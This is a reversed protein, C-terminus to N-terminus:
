RRKLALAARSVVTPADAKYEWLQHKPTLLIWGVSIAFILPNILGECSLNPFIFFYSKPILLAVAVLVLAPPYSEKGTGVVGAMLTFVFFVVLHYPSFISTGMAYLATLVFGFYFITMRGRWFLFSAWGIALCILGTISTNMWALVDPSPDVSIVRYILKLAGYASANNSDGGPGIVYLRYYTSIAEKFVSYSYGPEVASEVFYAVGGIGASVLFFFAWGLAARRLGFSLLLPAMLLANPRINCALALCFAALLLHRRVCCFYIYSILGGATILAFVNGRSLALMFPYSLALVIFAVVCEKRNPVFSWCLVGLWLWAGFYYFGVVAEPGITQLGRLVGNEILLSLPPLGFVTIRGRSVDALTGYANRLYFKQYHPSWYDLGPPPETALSLSTKIIDAHRDTPDGLYTCEFVYIADYEVNVSNLFGNFFTFFALALLGLSLWSLKFNMGRSTASLTPESM